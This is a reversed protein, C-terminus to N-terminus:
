PKGEFIFDQFIQVDVGTRRRRQVIPFEFSKIFTKISVLFM